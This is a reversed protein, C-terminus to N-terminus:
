SEQSLTVRTPEVKVDMALLLNIEGLDKLKFESKLQSILWTIQNTKAAIVVDDVYVTLFIPSDDIWMVYVGDAIISPKFGLKVLYKKLTANWILPAQKLGYLSKKLLCVRGGGDDFLEPQEMNVDVDMDGNLFATTFDIQRLQLDYYFALVIVVRIAEM